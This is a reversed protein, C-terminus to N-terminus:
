WALEDAKVQGNSGRGFNVANRLWTSFGMNLNVYRTGKAACHEIWHDCESQVDLGNKAAFARHEDTPAFDKPPRRRRGEGDGEGVGEGPYVVVPPMAYSDPVPPLKSDTKKQPKQYDAWRTVALYRCGGVEYRVILGLRNLEELWQDVLEAPLPPEAVQFMLSRLSRVDDEARGEDDCFPLLRWYCREAEASAAQLKDSKCADYHISRIRPM